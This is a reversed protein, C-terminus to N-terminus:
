ELRLTVGDSVFTVTGEEFTKKTEINFEEFREIVEKHPHGYRNDKGASIVVYDPSTYGLLLESNSTNSGHHGAKLVEVDLNEQYVSTVYEEIARPADGTFLFDHENYSLLLFSSAANTDINDLNRDPFLVTLTVEEDLVLEMGERAVARKIEKQKLINEKQTFAETDNVVGSDVVLGVSFRSLVEVLGGIHDGDPHTAIVVDISRDFFSMEKRLERLVRGNPPGGDILIQNGNPTEIFIADGQGVDLFSVRLHSTGEQSLLFVWVVLTALFLLVVIGLYFAHIRSM